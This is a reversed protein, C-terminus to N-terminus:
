IKNSYNKLFEIDYLALEKRQNFHAIKAEIASPKM